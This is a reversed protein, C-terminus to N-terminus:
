NLIWYVIHQLRFHKYLLFLRRHYTSRNTFHRTSRLNQWDYVFDCMRVIEYEWLWRKPLWQFHLNFILSIQNFISFMAVNLITTWSLVYCEHFDWIYCVLINECPNIRFDSSLLSLAFLFVFFFFRGFDVKCKSVEVINKQRDRHSHTQHQLKQSSPSIQRDFWSM